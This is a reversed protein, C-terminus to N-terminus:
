KRLYIHYLVCVISSCLLWVFLWRLWFIKRPKKKSKKTVLFSPPFFFLIIFFGVYIAIYYQISHIRKWVTIGPDNIEQELTALRSRYSIDSSM